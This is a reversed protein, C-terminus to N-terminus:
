GNTQADTLTIGETQLVYYM